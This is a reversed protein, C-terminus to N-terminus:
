RPWVEIMSRVREVSMLSARVEEESATPLHCSDDISFPGVATRTLTECCAGCGLRDGMDRALARIYTGRGCRIEFRLRPWEYSLLRISDVRIRRPPLDLLRGRRAAKYVSEGGVKVASFAPPVQEIEGEFSALAATIDANLPPTVNAVPIFPREPDHCENTVGLHLCTVYTKPLAMLREVLRTGNGVCGLLVGDAFPDLSGAHGVKQIGFVRRLRYVFQASSQGVPKYLNILGAPQGTNESVAHIGMRSPCARSEPNPLSTMTMKSSM